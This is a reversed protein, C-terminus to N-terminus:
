KTASSVHKNPNSPLNCATPVGAYIKDKIADPQAHLFMALRRVCVFTDDDAKLLYKFDLHRVKHIPSQTWGLTKTGGHSIPMHVRPCIAVVDGRHAFRSSYRSFM